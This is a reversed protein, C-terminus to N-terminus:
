HVKNACIKACSNCLRLAYNSNYIVTYVYDIIEM